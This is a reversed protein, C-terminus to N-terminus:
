KYLQQNLGEFNKEQRFYAKDFFRKIKELVCQMSLVDNYILKPDYCKFAIKREYDLIAKRIQVKLDKCLQKYKQLKEPTKKARIRYWAKITKIDFKLEKKDM